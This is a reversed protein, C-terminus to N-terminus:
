SKWLSKSFLLLIPFIELRGALMAFSLTWKSFDSLFGFNGTPGVAKFGPGVNNICTAVASFTTQFDLNELSLILLSAAFVLLYLVLYSYVNSITKPAIAEGEFNLTTVSRSHIMKKLEQIAQKSLMIIRSVKIGGGTSGACAGIFMLIVLITRSFEPWLDFDTTAFGTTTIVSAVQFSVHRITEELTSFMARANFSIFVISAFIIILYWRVEEMHIAQRLKKSLLLFYASFNIGFLIMFITVVYQIYPSYGAISDNKIGFGGTGATGFSTTLADFVSMKGFLLLVFEIVTLTLYISYLIKATSQVQPVLKSVSPGPSEAKMLNVHYGGDGGTLPLLCLIFVLVGMGGIWHTFSRWMLMCKPLSEVDPLISAGTTTFGSVTEFVADIPNSIVGGILFPLAGMISLIIWSLAVTVCGERTYFIKNKTKKQVLPIGILLCFMASLFFAWGSHEHYFIATICPLAMFLAEFNLIWGIIYAIISYNM